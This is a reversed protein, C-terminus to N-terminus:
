KIRTVDSIFVGTSLYVETDVISTFVKITAFEGAAIFSSTRIEKNAEPLRAM